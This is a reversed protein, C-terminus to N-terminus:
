DWKKGLVKEVFIKAISTDFQTGSSRKIELIAQDVSLENKYTRESIMADYADAISIIRAEIPINKGKLKKPYGTGDFKEHHALIFDAIESFENASSLIRYGIEPHRKIANWEEDNLRSKKNLISDEIGIKGIDHMLGAIRIQNISDKTFNLNKAISECLNSVRISHLMERNSKEFLSNMILDINKSRISSSESLKRRYMFDEAEKFVKDMNQSMDTKVAYGMSASFIVKDYKEAKIYDDIRQIINEADKSDTKPLLIILEDGGIRAIIEDARCVKKIINATKKIIEDGTKHGFADNTLKLGNLDVMVLSIPLNREIDLRQLEEEYFRRNYLGTLSDHYSLYKIRTQKERKETADRFIIVGGFINGNEDKIPAASDEIYIERGEKSILITDNEIESTDGTNLVKIVPSDCKERTNENIINFIEEFTKGIAEKELWGTLSEAVNNMMVIKGFKDTSIFGEGVSNLTIRLRESNEKLATNTYELEVTREEVKKELDNVLISIIDAMKNFSNSIDGVEDKTAIVVRQSLDGQAFKETVTKLNTMPKLYRNTIKLLVVLTIIIVLITFIFTSKMNRYIAAMFINQPVATIILWELGNKSYETTRTYFNEGESVVQYSDKNNISYNNYAEILAKNHIEIINKRKINGDKLIEFNNLDFSNAVLEGTNKDIIIALANIDGTIDKLFDDIRSLIIHAGLVGNVEGENDYVPIAASITLDNMIFHKYIPSFIFKGSEKAAKYWERTRADFKGAKVAIDGSTMKNTVKYYWSHGETDANNKMIEIDYNENRRAGYYEGSETGYSFSYLPESNNSMLVGVFFMERERENNIDVIKNEILKYNNENIREPVLLYNNVMSVIDKNKDEAMEIITENVSAMWNSFVIYGVGLITMILLGFFTTSFILRLSVDKDQIKKKIM